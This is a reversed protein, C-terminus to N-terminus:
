TNFESYLIDDLAVDKIMKRPLYYVDSGFLRIQEDVLSQILSQETSVGGHQPFYISKM